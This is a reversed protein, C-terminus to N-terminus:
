LNCQIDKFLVENELYYKNFDLSKRLLLNKKRSLLTM